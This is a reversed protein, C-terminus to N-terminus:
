GRLENSRNAKRSPLSNSVVSVIYWYPIKTLVEEDVVVPYVGGKLMDDHLEQEENVSRVPEVSLDVSVSRNNFELGSPGDRVPITILVPNTWSPEDGRAPIYLAFAEITGAKTLNHITQFVREMGEAGYTQYLIKGMLRPGYKGKLFKFFLKTYGYNLTEEILKLM